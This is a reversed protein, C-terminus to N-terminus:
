GPRKQYFMGADDIFNLGFRLNTSVFVLHRDGAGDSGSREATYDFLIRIM